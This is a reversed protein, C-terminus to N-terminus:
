RSRGGGDGVQRKPPALNNQAANHSVGINDFMDDVNSNNNSDTDDIQLNLHM